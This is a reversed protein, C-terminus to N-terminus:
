PFVKVWREDAKKLKGLKLAADVWKSFDEYIEDWDFGREVLKHEQLSEVIEYFDEFPMGYKEELM